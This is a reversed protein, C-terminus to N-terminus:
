INVWDVGYVKNRQNVKPLVMTNFIVQADARYFDVQIFTIGEKDFLHQTTTIAQPGLEGWLGAEMDICALVISGPPLNEITDRYEKSVQDISIPLGIPKVIPYSLLVVVIIWIIRRDVNLLKEISM